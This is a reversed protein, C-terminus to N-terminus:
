RDLSTHHTSPTWMKISKGCRYIISQAPWFLTHTNTHSKAANCKCNRLHAFDMQWQTPTHTHTRAHFHKLKYRHRHTSCKSNITNNRSSLFAHRLSNHQLTNSNCCALPFLFAIKTISASCMICNSAALNCTCNCRIEAIRNRQFKM